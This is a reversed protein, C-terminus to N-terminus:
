DDRVTGIRGQTRSSVIFRKNAEDYQIGEPSLARQPVTIKSPSAATAPEDDKSCSALLGLASMALAVLRVTRPLAVPGGVSLFSSLM